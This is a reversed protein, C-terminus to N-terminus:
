INMLFSITPSSSYNATPLFLVRGYVNLENAHYIWTSIIMVVTIVFSCSDWFTQTVRWFNRLQHTVSVIPIWPWTIGFAMDKYHWLNSPVKKFCLIYKWLAQEWCL